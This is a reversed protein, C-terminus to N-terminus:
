FFSYGLSVSFSYFKNETQYVSSSSSLPTAIKFNDFSGSVRVDLIFRWVDVGIGGEWGITYNKPSSVKEILNKGEQNVSLNYNFTPGVNIRIINIFKYGIMLPISIQSYSQKNTTKTSTGTEQIEVVTNYNTYLVEPQVFFGLIGIRGFIGAQWGFKPDGIHYSEVSPALEKQISMFSYNAGAKLGLKFDQSYTNKWFFFLLVFISVKKM